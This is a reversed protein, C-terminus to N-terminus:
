INAKHMPLALIILQGKCAKGLKFSSKTPREKQTKVVDHSPIGTPGPFTVSVQYLLYNDVALTLLHHLWHLTTAGVRTCHPSVQLMTSQPRTMKRKTQNSIVCHSGQFHKTCKATNLDISEKISYHLLSSKLLLEMIRSTIWWVTVCSEEWSGQVRNAQDDCRNLM